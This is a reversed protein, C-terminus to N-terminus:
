EEYMFVENDAPSEGEEACRERYEYWEKNSKNMMEEAEEKNFTRYIEIGQSVLVYQKKNELRFSEHFDDPHFPVSLGNNDEVYYFSGNSTVSYDSGESFEAYCESDLEITFDEKAVARKANDTGQANDTKNSTASTCYKIKEKNIAQIMASKYEMDYKNLNRRLEIAAEEIFAQNDKLSKYEEANLYSGLNEEVNQKDFLNQQELYAKFLEDSTLEYEKGDRAIKM